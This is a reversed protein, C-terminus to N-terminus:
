WSIQYTLTKPFDTWFIWTENWDSLYLPCKVHLGIYMKSRLESMEEQIFFIESLFQLFSSFVCKINLTTKKKFEHRKHSLAYFYQLAPYIFFHCMRMAHQISVAVFVCLPQAVCIAKGSVIGTNDNSDVILGVGVANAPIAWNTCHSAVPQITQSDFGPPLRSKGCGNMVATPGVWGGVSHTDRPLATPTHHQGGALM